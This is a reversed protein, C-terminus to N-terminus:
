LFLLLLEELVSWTFIVGVSKVISKKYSPSYSKMVKVEVEGVDAATAEGVNMVEVVNTMLFTM